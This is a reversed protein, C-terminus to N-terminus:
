NDMASRHAEDLLEAIRDEMVEWSYGQEYIHRARRGMKRLLEKDSRASRLTAVLDELDYSCTLAVGSEELWKSKVVESNILIPRSMMMADSWKNSVALRNIETSPDYFTFILDAVKCLRLAKDMPLPGHFNVRPHSSLRSRLDAEPCNGAAVVRVRPLRDIADLLLGVGRSERLYGMTYVTLYDPDPDTDLHDSQQALEPACNRIIRIKEQGQFWRPVRCEDPFIVYDARKMIGRDIWELLRAISNPWPYRLSYNDRVNYVYRYRGFVSAFACPVGCEFDIAMVLRPKVRLLTLITVIWWLPLWALLRKSAYGGGRLITRLHLGGIQEIRPFANERDWGLVSVKWGRKVLAPILKDYHPSINPRGGHGVVILLEKGLGESSEPTTPSFKSADQGSPKNGKLM